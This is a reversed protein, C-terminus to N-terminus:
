RVPRKEDSEQCVARAGRFGHQCACRGGGLPRRRGRAWIASNTSAGAEPAPSRLTTSTRTRKQAGSGTLSPCRGKSVRSVTPSVTGACGEPRLHSGRRNFRHGGIVANAPLGSAPDSRRRPAQSPRNAFIPDRPGMQGTEVLVLLRDIASRIRTQEARAHVLEQGHQSRKQDSLNVVDALLAQLRLPALLQREVADLVVSDLQERRISPGEYSRGKSM